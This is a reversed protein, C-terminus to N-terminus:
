RCRRRSGCRATTSTAATHTSWPAARSATTRVGVPVSMLAQGYLLVNRLYADANEPRISDLTAELLARDPEGGGPRMSIGISSDDSLKLGTCIDHVTILDRIHMWRDSAHLVAGTFSSVLQNMASQPLPEHRM